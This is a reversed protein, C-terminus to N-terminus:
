KEGSFEATIKNMALTATSGHVIISLLVIFAVTSWIEEAYIFNTQELAFALYFFSGVGKIGFFSTAWREKKHFRSGIFSLYGTFPRIIFIFVVGFIAMPWSLNELLGHALSGGFLLLVIALLIREAQDTFNHLTLHHEHEFEFNRIVIASVFVAIFGYGYAMETIAYVFLTTSIAVFGDMCKFFSLKKPIVFIIYAVVKGLIFGIAIGAIIRYLFDVLFWEAISGEGTSIMLAVTIALWTFPFAMGDNLGAEATLHFKAAVSEKEQPPGEQVDAALVPDTPTLVAALLIASALDFNLSFVGLASVIIISSLMTIIILKFPIKWTKFSFRSDIKLGTGMLAIIVALETLHLTFEQDYLPDPLPLDDLLSYLLAGLAVYFISYSINTKKTISPMWAMSFTALGIIAMALLYTQM